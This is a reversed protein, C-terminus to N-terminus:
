WWHAGAGSALVFSALSAAGLFARLAVYRGGSYDRYLRKITTMAYTVKEKEKAICLGVPRQDICLM